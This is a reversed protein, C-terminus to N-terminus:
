HEKSQSLNLTREGAKGNGSPKISYHCANCGDPIRKERKVDAQLVERFFDIEAACIEPFQEAIVRMACHHAALSLSDGQVQSAAMFGQESLSATIADLKEELSADSLEARMRAARERFLETFMKRVGDRGDNRAVLALIESLVKGYQNPFLAEGDPSLRYAYVPAGAGQRQRSFVILGDAELEKLHRRIANATVDFSAALEKATVPQSKKVEVLIEGRLGRHGALRPITSAM